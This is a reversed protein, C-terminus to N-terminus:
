STKAQDPQLSASETQPRSKLLRIEHAIMATWTIAMCLIIPLDVTLIKDSATKLRALSAVSDKEMESMQAEFKARMKASNEDIKALKEEAWPLPEPYIKYIKTESESKSLKSDKLGLKQIAQAENGNETSFTRRGNSSYLGRPKSASLASRAALLALRKSLAM